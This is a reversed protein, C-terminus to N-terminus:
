AQQFIVFCMVDIILLLEFSVSVKLEKAIYAVLDNLGPKNTTDGSSGSETELNLILNSILTFYEKYNLGREGNAKLGVTVDLSGLLEDLVVNLLSPRNIGEHGSDLICIRYLWTCAERRLQGNDNENDILLLTRLWSSRNPKALILDKVILSTDPETVDTPSATPPTQEDNKLLCIAMLQMSYALLEM